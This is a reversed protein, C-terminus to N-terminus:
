KLYNQIADKLNQIAQNRAFGDVRGQRPLVASQFAKFDAPSMVDQATELMKRQKWLSAERLVNQKKKADIQYNKLLLAAGASTKEATPYFWKQEPKEAALMLLAYPHLLEGKFLIGAVAFAAQMQRTHKLVAERGMPTEDLKLLLQAFEVQAVANGNDAALHYFLMSKNADPTINNTGRQFARALMLQTEDDNQGVACMYYYEMADQINKKDRVYDGEPCAAWALGTWCFCMFIFTLFKM